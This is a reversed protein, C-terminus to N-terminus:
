PASSTATTATPRKASSETTREFGRVSGDPRREFEGGFHSLVQLSGVAQAGARIGAASRDPMLPADLCLKLHPSGVEKHMRLIDNHDKILPKHNQLALTM